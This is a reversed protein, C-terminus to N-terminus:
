KPLPFGPPFYQKIFENVQARSMPPLPPLAGDKKSLSSVGAALTRREKAGPKTSWELEPEAPPMPTATPLTNKSATIKQNPAEDSPKRFNSHRIGFQKM